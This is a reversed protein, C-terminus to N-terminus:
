CSSDTARGPQRGSSAPECATEARGAQRFISSEGCTAGSDGEPQSEPRGETREIGHIRGDTGTCHFNGRQARDAEAAGCVALEANSNSNLTRFGLKIAAGPAAGIM